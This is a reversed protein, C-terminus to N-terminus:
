STLYPAILKALDIAEEQILAMSCDTLEDFGAERLGDINMVGLVPGDAQKLPISIVWKLETPVFPAVQEPVDAVGRGPERREEIRPRGSAFAAGTAGQGPQYTVKRESASTMNITLEEYLMHLTYDDDRGSSGYVPFFTNVRVESGQITIGRANLRSHVKTRAQQLRERAQVLVRIDLELRPRYPTPADTAPGSYRRGLVILAGALILLCAVTKGLEYPPVLLAVVSVAAMAYGFFAVVKVGLPANKFLAQALTSSQQIFARATHDAEDSGTAAQKKAPRGTM